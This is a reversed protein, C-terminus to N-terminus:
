TKKRRGPWRGTVRAFQRRSVHDVLGNVFANVAGELALAIGLKAVSAQPEEARPPPAGDDVVRWARAFLRASLRPAVRRAVLRVPAFMVKTAFGGGTQLPPASAAPEPTRRRIRVGPLRGATPQCVLM